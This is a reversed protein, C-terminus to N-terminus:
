TAATESAAGGQTAKKSRRWSKVVKRFRWLRGFYEFTDAIARVSSTKDHRRIFLCPVEAIEIEGTRLQQLVQKMLAAVCPM